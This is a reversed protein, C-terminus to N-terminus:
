RHCTSVRAASVKVKTKAMGWIQMDTRKLSIDPSMPKFRTSSPTTQPMGGKDARNITRRPPNSASRYPALRVMPMAQRRAPNAPAMLPKEPPKALRVNVVNRNPRAIQTIAALTKLVVAVQNEPLCSTNALPTTDVPIPNPKVTPAIILAVMSDGNSPPQRFTNNRNPPMDIM